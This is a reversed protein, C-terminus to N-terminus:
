RQIYREMSRREMRSREMQRKETFRSCRCRGNAGAASELEEDDKAVEGLERCNGEGDKENNM